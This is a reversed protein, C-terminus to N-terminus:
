DKICRVSYLKYYLYAKRRISKKQIDLERVWGHKRNFQDNVIAETSCWFYATKGLERYADADLKAGAFLANFCSSGNEILKEGENTGRWGISDASTISMGLHIELTKWEEDSPLHWGEPCAKKAMDWNYLYGYTDVNNEDYNYSAYDIHEGKDPKYALNKAMWIQNGIKVTAYSKGDRKDIFNDSTKITDKISSKLNSTSTSINPTVFLASCIVGIFLFIITNKM